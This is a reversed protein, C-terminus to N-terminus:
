LRPPLGGEVIINGEEEQHVGWLTPVRHSGNGGSSLPVRVIRRGWTKGDDRHGTAGGSPPVRGPGQADGRDGGLYKQLIIASVTGGGQVDRGLGKGNSGDKIAGKSSNGIEGM